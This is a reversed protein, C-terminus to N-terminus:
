SETSEDSSNEDETSSEETEETESSESEVTVTYPYEIVRASKLQSKATSYYTEIQFTYTGAALTSPSLFVVKKPDNTAVNDVEITEETETNIFRIIGIGSGDENVCRIKNGAVVIISGATITGTSLGTRTDTISSIKAGGLNKVYGSFEADVQAIQAKFATTTNVSVKCVNKSSDMDGSTGSFTGTIVPQYIATPLVVSNGMCVQEMVEDGVLKVVMEITDQRLDTRESAIAGAIDSLTLSNNIKVTARHANATDTTLAFEVLDFYWKYNITSAM